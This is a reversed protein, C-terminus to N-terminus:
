TEGRDRSCRYTSLFQMCPVSTNFVTCRCSFVSVIKGRESLMCHIKEVLIPISKYSDLRDEIKTMTKKLSAIENDVEDQKRRLVRYTDDAGTHQKYTSDVQTIPLFNGRM